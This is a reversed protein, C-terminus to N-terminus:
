RVGKLHKVANDLAKYRHDMMSGTFYKLAEDLRNEPVRKEETKNVYPQNDLSKM